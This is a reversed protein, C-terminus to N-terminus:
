TNPLRRSQHPGTIVILGWGDDDTIYKVAISEGDENIIEIGDDFPKIFELLERKTM